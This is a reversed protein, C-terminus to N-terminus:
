KTTTSVHKLRKELYEIKNCLELIKSAMAGVILEHPNEIMESYEACKEEFQSIVFLQGPNHTIM